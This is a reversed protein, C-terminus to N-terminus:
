NYVKQTENEHSYFLVKKKEYCPSQITNLENQFQPEARPARFHVISLNLVHRIVLFDPITAPVKVFFRAPFFIELGAVCSLHKLIILQVM